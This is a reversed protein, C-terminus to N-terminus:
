NLMKGLTYIATLLYLLGSLEVKIKNRISFKIVEQFCLFYQLQRGVRMENEVLCAQLLTLQLGIANMGDLM